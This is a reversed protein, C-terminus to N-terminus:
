RLLVVLLMVFLGIIFFVFPTIVMWIAENKFSFKALRM